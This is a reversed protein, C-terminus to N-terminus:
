GHLQISAQAMVKHRTGLVLRGVVSDGLNQFKSFWGSDDLLKAIENSEEVEVFFRPLMTGM